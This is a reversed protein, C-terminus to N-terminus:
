GPAILSLCQWKGQLQQLETVIPLLQQQLDASLDVMGNGQLFIDGFMLVSMSASM